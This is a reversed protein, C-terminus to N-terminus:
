YKKNINVSFLLYTNNASRYCSINNTPRFSYFSFKNIISSVLHLLEHKTQCVNFDGQHKNFYKLIVSDIKEISIGQRSTRAILPLVPLLHNLQQPSHNM